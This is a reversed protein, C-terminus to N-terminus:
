EENRQESSQMDESVNMEWMGISSVAHAYQEASEKIDDRKIDGEM